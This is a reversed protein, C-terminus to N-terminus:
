HKRFEFILPVTPDGYLSYYLLNILIVYWNHLNYTTAYDENLM